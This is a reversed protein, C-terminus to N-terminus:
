PLRVHIYIYIYKHAHEFAHDHGARYRMVLLKQRREVPSTRKVARRGIFMRGRFRTPNLKMRDQPEISRPLRPHCPPSRTRPKARRARAVARRIGDFQAQRFEGEVRGRGTTNPEGAATLEIAGSAKLRGEHYAIRPIVNNEHNEDGRRSTTTGSIRPYVTLTILGSNKQGALKSRM